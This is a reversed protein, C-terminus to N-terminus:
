RRDIDNDDAHRQERGGWSPNTRATRRLVARARAIVEKVSCPKVIFDDVGMELAAIRDGPAGVASVIIVPIEQTALNAKLSRCVEWGTMAPLLLDLIILDPQYLHIAHQGARGDSATTVRFGESAFRQALLKAVDPEDEIIVVHQM